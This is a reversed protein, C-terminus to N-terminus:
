GKRTGTSRQSLWRWLIGDPARRGTRIFRLANHNCLIWQMHAGANEQGCFLIQDYYKITIDTDPILFVESGRKILLPVAPLIQKRDRPDRMLTDLTISEGSNLCDSVAVASQEDITITWTDLPQDGMSEIIRLFLERSEERHCRRFLDFFEILLPTRILMFVQNAVERGAQMIMNIDAARFLPKNSDLNQRAITILKPNLERATIIISLNDADDSTGAIVGVADEIKAESLTRAETGVGKITGEPAGTKVPDPDIFTIEIGYEQFKRQLAHGFRGFGCVVWRGETEQHPSAWVKHNPNVILDHLLHKYPKRLTLYIQDAFTEFPDIIFDTGFSALNATTEKSQTSSIVLREPQVLKAHIAVSLNTHDDDTLALVGICLKNQIGAINLIDPDSADACIGPNTLSIEDADFEDFVSQDREVIVTAIDREDLLNVIRHGTVGYGCVLYYPETLRSIRRIFSSRKILRRVNPDQFLAFIKGISYLWSIVTAYITIVTWARQMATFPYPIEGFGITSGMFSVFYFAHFFDMRWPNGENDAGPILVFGLVSIAYVVIVTIIPIRLHRLLLYLVHQM